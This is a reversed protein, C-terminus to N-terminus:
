YNFYFYALTFLFFNVFKRSINEVKKQGIKKTSTKFTKNNQKHENHNSDKPNKKIM